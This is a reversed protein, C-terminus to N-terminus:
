YKRFRLLKMSSYVDNKRSIQVKHGSLNIRFGLNKMLRFVIKQLSINKNSFSFKYTFTGKHVSFSGEAEYLGRLYRVIYSRKALIWGPVLIKKNKRPSFPIGLRRSIEKEYIRIRICNESSHITETPKKGFVKEVLSAYRRVFDPNNSNSFISLEETRPYKRIHGDGLIVGILEALDGNRKLAPYSNKIKGLKKMEKRWLAFNDIGKKRMTQSIKKRRELEGM